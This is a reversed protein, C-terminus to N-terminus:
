ATRMIYALALYPPLNSTSGSTVSVSHTHGGGSSIPHTHNAYNAGENGVARAEPIQTAADTSGGHNHGGSSNTNTSVSHTHASVGGTDEPDYTSGAGVIFRNRLDPTGNGGDCLAWGSPISSVTGSWLIIGGVPINGSSGTAASILSNVQQLPTAQLDATANGSLVLNGTMTGGSKQLSGAIGAEMRDLNAENLPTGGGSSNQWDYATYDAM